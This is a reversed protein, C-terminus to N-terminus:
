KAEGAGGAEGGKPPFGFTSIHFPNRRFIDRKGGSELKKWIECNRSYQSVQTSNIVNQADIARDASNQRNVLFRIIAIRQSPDPCFFQHCFFSPSIHHNQIIFCFAVQQIIIKMPPPANAAASSRFTLRSGCSRCKEAMLREAQSHRGCKRNFRLLRRFHLSRRTAPDTACRM